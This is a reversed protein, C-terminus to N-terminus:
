QTAMRREQDNDTHLDPSLLAAAARLDTIQQGLAKMAGARTGCVALLLGLRTRTPAGRGRAREELWDLAGTSPEYWPDVGLEDLLEIDDPSPHCRAHHWAALTLAAAALSRQTAHALRAVEIPTYAGDALTAIARRPVGAQLWGTRADPHASDLQGNTWALWVAIDEDPVARLTGAIWDLAPRRSLVGLYFWVPLPPGDPWVAHHIAIITEPHLGCDWLLEVGRHDRVAAVAREDTTSPTFFLTDHADLVPDMLRELSRQKVDFERAVHAASRVHDAAEPASGFGFPGCRCGAPLVTPTWRGGDDRLMRVPSRRARRQVIERLAPVARDILDLCSLYGGMAAAVRELAVDHPTTVTWDADISVPHTTRPGGGRTTRCSVRLEVRGEPSPPVPTLTFPDADIALDFTL